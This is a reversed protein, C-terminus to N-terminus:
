LLQLCIKKSERKRKNTIICHDKKISLTYFDNEYETIQILMEGFKSFVQKYPFYNKVLKSDGDWINRLQGEIDRYFRANSYGSPVELHFM